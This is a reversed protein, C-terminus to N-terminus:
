DFLNLQCIKAIFKLLAKEELQRIREGSVKYKKAIKELTKDKLRKVLVEKEKKTLEKSNKVISIFYEITQNSM